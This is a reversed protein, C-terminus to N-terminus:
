PGCITRFQPPIPDLISSTSRLFCPVKSFIAELSQNGALATSQEDFLKSIMLKRMGMAKQAHLKAM